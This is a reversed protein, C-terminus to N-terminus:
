FIVFIAEELACLFFNFKEYSKYSVKVGMVGM